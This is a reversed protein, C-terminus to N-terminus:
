VSDIILKTDGEISLRRVKMEVVIKLGWLLTTAEVVNNTGQGLIRSYAVLVDGKKDRLLGGVIALGKHAVGDFNLKISPSTPTNWCTNRRTLMKSNDFNHFNLLINWREAIDEEKRSPPEQPLRVKAVIVNETIIKGLIEGVIDEGMQEHFVRNNREKWIGWFVHPPLLLWLTSLHPHYFPCSWKEVFQNMGRNMVWDIM